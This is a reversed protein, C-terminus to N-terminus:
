RYKSQHVTTPPRTLQCTLSHVSDVQSARDQPRVLWPQCIRVRPRDIETDALSATGSVGYRILPPPTWAAPSFCVHTVPHTSCRDGQVHWIDPTCQAPQGPRNAPSDHWSSPVPFIRPILHKIVPNNQTGSLRATKASWRPCVYPPQGYTTHPRPVHVSRAQHSTSDAMKSHSGLTCVQQQRQRNRVRHEHM